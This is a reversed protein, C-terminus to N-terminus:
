TLERRSFLLRSNMKRNKEEIKMLSYSPTENEAEGKNTPLIIM